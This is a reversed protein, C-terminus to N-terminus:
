CLTKNYYDLENLMNKDKNYLLEQEEFWIYQNKNILGVIETNEDWITGLNKDLYYNKENYKIVDFIKEHTKNVMTDIDAQSSKKKTSTVTM